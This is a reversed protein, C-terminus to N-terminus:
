LITGCTEVLLINRANVLEYQRLEIQRESFCTNFSYKSNNVLSYIENKVTKIELQRKRKSPSLSTNIKTKAEINVTQVVLSPIQFDVKKKPKDWLAFYDVKKDKIHTYKKM